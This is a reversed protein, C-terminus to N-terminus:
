KEPSICASDNPASFIAIAAPPDVEHGKRHQASQPSLLSGLLLITALGNFTAHMCIAAILSGTRQYVFGIAISLVFIAFPAPWQPGHVGAFILSTLVIGTLGARPREFTGPPIAKPPELAAKPPEFPNRLEVGDEEVQSAEFTLQPTPMLGAISDVAVSDALVPMRQPRKRSGLSVLWNQLIGRFMVEEFLPAVVVATLVALQAVGPSFEDLVMKQLPHAEGKWIMQMAFQVGYVIPAVALLAVVGVAVQVWWRKFSLGLDRLPTPTTMRLLVPLLFLLILDMVVGVSMSETFSPPQDVAPSKADSVEVARDKVGAGTPRTETKAVKAPPSSEAKAKGAAVPPVPAAPRTPRRGTLKAYGIVCAVNVIVFAVMTLLITGIGWSLERRSVLPRAPLVPRRVVLRYIVWGQAAIMAVVVYIVFLSLILLLIENRGISQM